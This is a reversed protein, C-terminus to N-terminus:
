SEGRRQGRLLVSGSRGAKGPLVAGRLPAEFTQSKKADNAPIHRAKPQDATLSSTNASLALETSHNYSLSHFRDRISILSASQCRRRAIWRPVSGRSFRASRVMVTAQAWERCTLQARMHAVDEAQDARRQVEDDPLPAPRM